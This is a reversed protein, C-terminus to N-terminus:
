SSLYRKHPDTSSLHAATENCLFCFEDQDPIPKKWIQISKSEPHLIAKGLTYYFFHTFRFCIQGPPNIM